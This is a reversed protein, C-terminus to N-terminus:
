SGEDGEKFSMDKYILDDKAKIHFLEMAAFVLHKQTDTRTNSFIKSHIGGKNANNPGEKGKKGAKHNANNGIKDARHDHRLLLDLIFNWGYGM